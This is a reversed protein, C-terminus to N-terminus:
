LPTFSIASVEPKLDRHAFGEQQIAVLGKLLQRIVIKAEGETREAKLYNSLNGHPVYEMAIHIRYESEYWGFLQM